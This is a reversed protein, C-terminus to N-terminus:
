LYTRRVSAWDRSLIMPTRRISERSYSITFDLNVVIIIRASVTDWSIVATIELLNHTISTSLSKRTSEHPRLCRCEAELRLLVLLVYSLQDLRQVSCPWSGSYSPFTTLSLKFASSSSAHRVTGHKKPWGSRSTITPTIYWPCTVRFNNLFLHFQKFFYNDKEM